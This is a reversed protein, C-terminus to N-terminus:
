ETNSFVCVFYVITSDGLTETDPNWLTFFLLPKTM